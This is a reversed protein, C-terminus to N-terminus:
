GLGIQLTVHASMHAVIATLLGKRWFLYGWLSGALVHLVLERAALVPTLPGGGTAQGLHVLVYITAVGVIAHRVAGVAPANRRAGLTWALVSVLCLRYVLEDVLALPVFVAIRQWAPVGAISAVQLPPVHGRFVIRDALAAYVGFALGIGIGRLVPHAGGHPRVDLGIRSSVAGGIVAAALVVAVRLPAAMPFAVSQPVAWAVAAASGALVLLIDRAPVEALREGGTVRPEM